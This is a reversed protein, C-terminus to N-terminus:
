SNTEKPRSNDSIPFIIIKDEHIPADRLYGSPLACMEELVDRPLKLDEVIETRSRGHENQLKEICQSFLRPRELPMEKDLPESKRWEKKSLNINLYTYQTDTIIKLGLCRRMMAQISVKWKEKMGVFCKLTPAWLDNVFPVEPLLLSSAFYHAQEEIADFGHEKTYDEATLNRHLIIHGLEHAADFRSRACSQKSTNLLVYPVEEIVSTVADLKEALLDVACVVIGSKEMERVVNGIPRSGIGWHQRLATTVEDIFGSEIRNFDKPVNFDPLNLRPLDFASNFYDRIEKEWKLVAEGRARAIKKASSLSRWLKQSGEEEAPVLFFQPPFNLFNCIEAFSTPSPRTDGGLYKTITSPNVNLASAISTKSEMRFRLAEELRAAQFNSIGVQM